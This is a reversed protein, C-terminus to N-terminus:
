TASSLSLAEIHAKYHARGEWKKERGRSQNCRLSETELSQVPFM